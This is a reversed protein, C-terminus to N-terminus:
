RAHLEAKWTPIHRDRQQSETAMQHFARSLRAFEDHRRVALRHDFRGQGLEGAGTVLAQVPRSIGRALLLGAVLALVLSVAIWTFAQDRIQRSSAFAVAAPQQAVVIWGLPLAATAARM